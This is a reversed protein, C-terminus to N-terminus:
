KCVRSCVSCRLCAKLWSGDSVASADESIFIADMSDRRLGSGLRVLDSRKGRGVGEGDLEVLVIM